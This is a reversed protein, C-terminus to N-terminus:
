LYRELGKAKIADVLKKVDSEKKRTTVLTANGNLSSVSGTSAITLSGAASILVANPVRLIQDIGFAGSAALSVSTAANPTLVGGPTTFVRDTIPTTAISGAASALGSAVASLATADTRITLLSDRLDLNQVSGGAGRVYANSKVANGAIDIFVGSGQATASPSGLRTRQESRMSAPWAEAQSTVRRSSFSVGRTRAKMSKM